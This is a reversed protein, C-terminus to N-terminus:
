EAGLAGAVRVYDGMRRQGFCPYDDSLGLFAIDFICDPEGLQDAVGDEHVAGEGADGM